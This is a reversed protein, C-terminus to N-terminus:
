QSKEKHKSVAKQIDAGVNHWDKWLSEAMNKDLDPSIKANPIEPLRRIEFGSAPAALGKAVSTMFVRRMGADYIFLKKLTSM